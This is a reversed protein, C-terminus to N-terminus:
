PISTSCSSQRSSLDGGAAKRSFKQELVAASPLTGFGSIQRVGDLAFFMQELRALYDDCVKELAGAVAPDLALDGVNASDLVRQWEYTDITPDM